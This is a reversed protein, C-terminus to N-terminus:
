KGKMSNHFMVNMRRSNADATSQASVAMSLADDATEQAGLAM